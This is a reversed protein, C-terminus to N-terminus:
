LEDHGGEGREEAGMRARAMLREFEEDSIEEAFEVKLPADERGLDDLGIKVEEAREGRAPAAVVLSEPLPQKVGEGMRIADIWTEVANRSVDLATVGAPSTITSAYHKWWGKRANVAVIEVASDPGLGLTDRLKAAGPNSAPLAYFPFLKGKRQAHKHHIEGLSALAATAPASLTADADSQAPILALVCTSSKAGLCAKQLETETELSSIMPAADPLVIPKQADETVVNPNPSETPYNDDVLTETTQTAKALSSDASAHSLSAKSFSSSDKAAKQSDKSAKKGDKTSSKGSKPKAPAPDPNPTAVASLFQVLAEKKMEGSYLIGERDGGPLLVLSPYSTVGFMEIAASDKSRVQAVEISGLFDVALARLLASTKGQESFLIAKATENKDKLWKELSADTVRTVHNPIKEVVADVIAKATRQGQYDEVTPKGGKKGPRVIKLTPFGQVGMSGCFPKNSEEDCNVAAVKALGKLNKAVKEYAPQLSKCHGCWPAYFEVISTHNSKAILRDYSNGDVQLVPSSKSYLSALAPTLLSLSAATAALTNIHVM